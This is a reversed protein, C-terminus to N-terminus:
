LLFDNQTLLIAHMPDFLDISFDARGDGNVDGEVVHGRDTEYSRLQGATGTFKANMGIFNFAQDGAALVNADIPSLNIRDIGDQFDTIVDRTAATIGSDKLSTFDFTDAEAGGTLIDKGAGGVLRDTGAGGILTDDGGLGFLIDASNGGDLVNAAASGYIIDSGNGGNANEFGTVTDKRVGTSDRSVDSGFATNAAIRGAGPILSSFDHEVTDLNIRVGSLAARADYTDTGTGGDVVDTGDSGVAGTAVYTDDGGDFRFTDAGANDVVTEAFVGGLFTDNGAGLDVRGHIVGSNQVMDIGNGTIVDGGITGSNVLANAGDALHVHGGITGSNDVTDNGAGVASMALGGFPSHIAGANTVHNNGDGLSVGGVIL